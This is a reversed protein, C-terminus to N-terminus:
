NRVPSIRGDEGVTWHPHFIVRWCHGDPDAFSFYYGGWFLSEPEKLIKADKRKVRDFIEDVEERTRVLDSMQCKSYQCAKLVEPSANMSVALDAYSTLALVLGDLRFFVIKPLNPEAQWGVVDEYFKKSRALNEVALTIMNARQEM